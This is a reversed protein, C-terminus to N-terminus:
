EAAVLFPPDINYDEAGESIETLFEAWSRLFDLFDDQRVSYIRVLRAGYDNAFLAITKAEEGPSYRGRSDLYAISGHALACRLGNLVRLAPLEDVATCLEPSFIGGSREQCERWDEPGRVQGPVSMLSWQGGGRFPVKSFPRELETTLREYMKPLSKQDHKAAGRYTGLREIPVIILPMAMTVAFTTTLPGSGFRPESIQRAYEDLGDILCVCRAAFDYTFVSPIMHDEVDSTNSALSSPRRIRYCTRFHANYEAARQASCKQECLKAGMDQMLGCNRTAESPHPERNAM